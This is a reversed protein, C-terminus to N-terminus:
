DALAGNLTEQLTNLFAGASGLPAADNAKTDRHHMQRWHPGLCFSISTFHSCSLFAQSSCGDAIIRALM